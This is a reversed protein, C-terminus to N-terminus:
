PADHGELEHAIALLEEVPDWQGDVQKAAARLATALADNTWPQGNAAKHFAFRVAQAAPSLDIM